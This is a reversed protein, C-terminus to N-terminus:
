YGYPKHSPTIVNSLSNSKMSEDEADMGLPFREGLHLRWIESSKKFNIEKLAREADLSFSHLASMFFDKNPYSAFLDEDVPPTPRMCRFSFKLTSHIQQLTEKLAVDDRDNQVYNNAVLITLILGCPMEKRKLDGWAKMYRVLRRIQSDAKRMDSLWKSYNERQNRYEYLFESRFGSEAKTEFWEIFEVPNSLKWGSKTDALEPDFHEQKLYIPLDIHFGLPYSVRVCTAKDEVKEDSNDVDVCTIVWDHLNQTTVFEKVNEKTILYIGDDLDFDKSVPQIITDMIFSGQSQFFIEIARRTEVDLNNFNSRVRKRLTNRSFVLLKRDEDTLRIVSNFQYFEKFLNAM